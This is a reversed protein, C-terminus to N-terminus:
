KNTVIQEAVELVDFRIDPTKDTNDIIYDCIVDDLDRESIHDHPEINTDLVRVTCVEYGAKLLAEKESRFRWDSIITHSRSHDIKTILLDAWVDDGFHKKMADTGFRQLIERYNTEVYDNVIPEYDNKLEDLESTTINFAISMIDKLPEAFSLVESNLLNNKLLDAVYDKGARKYGSVLVVM